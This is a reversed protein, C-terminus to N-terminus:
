GELLEIDFPTEGIVDTNTVQITKGERYNVGAGFDPDYENEESNIRKYWRYTYKYPEVNDIEDKGRRVVCTLNLTKSEGKRILQGGDSKLELSIPDSQDTITVTSRYPKNYTAVNSSNTDITVCQFVEYNVVASPFVKMRNSTVDETVGTVNALKKWGNGGKVDGGSVTTANPDQAYWQYTIGTTDVVSGRWFDCQVTISAPADNKFVDGDPCWAMANAIGSGNTTLTFDIDGVVPISLKTDSDYYNLKCRYSKGILGAQVNATINLKYNKSSVVTYSYSSNPVVIPVETGNSIDYWTVDTVASTNFVDSGSGLKFLTPTITMPSAVSWEPTISETEPNFQQFKSKSPTLHLSLTIADNYDTITIQGTSIIKQVM